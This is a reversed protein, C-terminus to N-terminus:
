RIVGCYITSTMGLIAIIVVFVLLSIMLAFFCFTILDDYRCLNDMFRRCWDNMRELMNM